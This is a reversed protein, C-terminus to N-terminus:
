GRKNAIYDDIALNVVQSVSRQEAAAFAKLAALTNPHLRVSTILQSERPKPPARFGKRVLPM